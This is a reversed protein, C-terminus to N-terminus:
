ARYFLRDLEEPSIRLMTPRGHPCRSPNECEALERLIGSLVESAVYDNRKISAKCAKMAAYEDYLRVSEEGELIRHILHVILDQEGGPELYPPIERVIYASAGFEEILFGSELLEDTRELIASLEDPLCDITIPHLLPQRQSRQAELRRRMKEYNIREHATHQDIIYLGDDGEALIYTGFLLGFHRQPLFSRKSSAVGAGSAAESEAEPNAGSQSAAGPETSTAIAEPPTADYGHETATRASAERRISDGQAGALIEGRGDLREGTALGTGGAFIEGKGSDAASAEAPAFPDTWHEHGPAPSWLEHARREQPPRDLLVQEVQLMGHQLRPAPRQGRAGWGGFSLPENPRLARGVGQVVLGHLLHEDLLRVERKAPHVNVDVRHPDIELFLFYYPHAGPPLLEDYAKRALYSFHKIEVSRNNIFTFQGDRNARHYNGDCVFGRMRLGEYEHDVPVLYQDIKSKYIQAIRERLDAAAAFNAYEKGDRVYVFHIQPHALALRIVQAYNRSNEARESRVYKRRAPTAYFLDRVTIVTGPKCVTPEERVIDGGRVELLAGTRDDARRSKIELHSVSAISALAEGRFGFSLIADLDELERIKSTAHREVAFRLDDAHIGRGDDEVVLLDLGAAATEIRIRAAGADLSNEVMEKIASFPAEVVEGAAIRDVLVPPLKQIRSKTSASM